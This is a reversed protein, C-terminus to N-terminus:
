KVANGHYFYYGLGITFIYCGYLAHELCTLALSKHKSYTTAFLYGGIMSFVVAVWNRLVIHIFGFAVASVLPMYRSPFLAAYRHFFFSRYIIEQPVVSLLPYLIMVMGWLLLSKKPLGFLHDPINIWTFFLLATALIFFRLLISLIVLRQLASKNWDTFFGYNYQKKLTLYSILSFVWLLLYIWSHPKLYSIGLPFLFFVTILECWLYRTSHPRPTM